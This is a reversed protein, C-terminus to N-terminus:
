FRPVWERQIKNLFFFVKSIVVKIVLVLKINWFGLVTIQNRKGSIIIM